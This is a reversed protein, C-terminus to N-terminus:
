AAVGQQIVKKPRELLWILGTIATFTVGYFIGQILMPQEMYGILVHLTQGLLSNEALLASSDWLTDSYDFFYGASVLFGAGVAMLGCVVLTLLASTVTFLHQTPIKILGFYLVAGLAFGAAAGLMAGFIIDSVAKGTAVMSYTFLAIEAGERLVALGIVAALAMYPMRNEAVAKGVSKIKGVMERAHTRMWIVTWGIFFAATFLICANMLEQGLGEMGSSIVDMFLAISAAGLAGAAFGGWVYANRGALGRTAALVVGLILAIEFAERFIVIATSLM